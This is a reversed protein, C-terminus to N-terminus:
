IIGDERLMDMLLQKGRHIRKKVTEYRIDLLKSIQKASLDNSIHMQMINRNIDPLSAIRKRIEESLVNDMATEDTSLSASILESEDLDDLSQHQRIKNKRLIDFSTRKCTIVCLSTWQPRSEAFIKDWSEIIKLFSQHVADEAQTYNNLIKNAHYHMLERNEEYMKEFSQKQEETELLSLYYNLL